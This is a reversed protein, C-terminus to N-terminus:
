SSRGAPFRRQCRATPSPSSPSPRLMGRKVALRKCSPFLAVPRTPLSSLLGARRPAPPFPGTWLLFRARLQLQPLPPRAAAKQCTAVKESLDRLLQLKGRQSGARLLFLPKSLKSLPEFPLPDGHRGHGTGAPASVGPGIRPARCPEGVASQLFAPSPCGWHRQSSPHPCLPLPLGFVLPAGGPAPLGAPVARAPMTRARPERHKAPKTFGWSGSRPPKTVPPPLSGFGRAPPQRRSGSPALSLRGRWATESWLLHIQPETRTIPLAWSCRM